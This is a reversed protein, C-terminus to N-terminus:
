STKSSAYNGNKGRLLRHYVEFNTEALEFRALEQPVNPPIALPTTTHCTHSAAWSARHSMSVARISLGSNRTGWWTRGWWARVAPRNAEVGVAWMDNSGCGGINKCKKGQLECIAKALEAGSRAGLGISRCSMGSGASQSGLVGTAIRSM